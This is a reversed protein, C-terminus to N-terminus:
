SSLYIQASPPSPLPYVHVIKRKLPPPHTLPPLSPTLRRTFHRSPFDSLNTFLNVQSKQLYRECLVAEFIRLNGVCVCVCVCVRWCVGGNAFFQDCCPLQNPWYLILM